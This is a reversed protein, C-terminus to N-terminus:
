PIASPSLAPRMASTNLGSTDPRPRLMQCRLRAIGIEAREPLERGAIRHDARQAFLGENLHQRDLAVFDEIFRVHNFEDRERRLAVLHQRNAPLLETGRLVPNVFACLHDM